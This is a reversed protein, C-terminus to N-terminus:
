KKGGINKVWNRKSYLVSRRDRLLSLYEKETVVCYRRGYHTIAVGTGAKRAWYSSRMLSGMTYGVSFTALVIGTAILIM